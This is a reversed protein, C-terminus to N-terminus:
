VAKRLTNFGQVSLIGFTPDAKVGSLKKSHVQVKVDYILAVCPSNDAIYKQYKKVAAALQEVTQAEAMEQRIVGFETLQGLENEIAIQGHAVPNKVFGAAQMVSNNTTLLYRTAYGAEFDYGGATVSALSATHRGEQYYSQWDAGKVALTVNIMGTETLDTRILDAYQSDNGSARVLLEFEFKNSESYGAELLLNKAGELDRVLEATSDFGLIGPAVFGERPLASESTGFIRKIKDYDIAKRIARKVRPDTLKTNNFFLVKPIAKTTFSALQLNSQGKLDEVADAELGSGYNWIMDIEGAKLALRMSDGSGYYKFIVRNVSIDDAYPYDAFKEFELTGADINRRAFRFPGCGIVAQAESITDKNENGVIHEPALAVSRLGDLFTAKAKGLTVTVSRNGVAVTIDTLENQLTYKLDEVTVPVGDHWYFGDKLAFVYTRGDERATIDCLLSRYEGDEFYVLPIHTLTNSLMTYAYGPAGGASDLRNLTDVVTTTGVILTDAYEAKNCASFGVAGLLLIFVVALIFLTLTIRKTM